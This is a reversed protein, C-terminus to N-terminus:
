SKEAAFSSSRTAMFIRPDSGRIACPLCYIIRMKSLYVLSVRARGVDFVDHVRMVFTKKSCQIMGELIM